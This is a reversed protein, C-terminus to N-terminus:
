EETESEEDPDAYASPIRKGTHACYMDPDEWNADVALVEWQPNSGPLKIALAVERLNERVAQPSLTEGDRTVFYVPYGGPFVYDFKCSERLNRLTIQM